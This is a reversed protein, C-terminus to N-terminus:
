HVVIVPQGHAKPFPAFLTTSASARPLQFWVFSPIRQPPFLHECTLVKGPASLAPSLQRPIRSRHAVPLGVSAHAASFNRSSWGLSRQMGEYLVRELVLILSLSACLYLRWRRCTRRSKGSLVGWRPLPLDSGDTPFTRALCQFSM